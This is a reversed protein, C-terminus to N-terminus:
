ADTFSRMFMELGLCECVQLEQTMCAPPLLGRLYYADREKDTFALGKNHHPDRLLSYGSYCLLNAYWHGIPLHHSVLLPWLYLLAYLAAINFGECHFSCCKLKLLILIHFFTSLLSFSSLAVYTMYHFYYMGAAVFVHQNIKLSHKRPQTLFWPSCTFLKCSLCSTASSKLPHDIIRYDEM